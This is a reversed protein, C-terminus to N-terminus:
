RNREADRAKEYTRFAGLGLLGVLVQLTLTTDIAPFPGAYGFGVQAAFRAIPEAISAYALAAGCTWGVFPRWGAIFMNTSRAEERNVDIQARILGLEALERENRRSLMYKQFELDLERLRVRDEPRIQEMWRTVADISSEPLGARKALWAAATGAVAPSAIAQAITPILAAVIPAM